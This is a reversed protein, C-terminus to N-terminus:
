LIWHKNNSFNLFEMENVSEPISVSSSLVENTRLAIRSIPGRLKSQICSTDTLQSDAKWQLQCRSLAACSLSRDAYQLPWTRWPIDSSDQVYANVNTMERRLTPPNFFPTLNVSSIIDDAQLCHSLFCFFSACTTQYDKFRHLKRKFFQM